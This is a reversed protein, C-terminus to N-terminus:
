QMNAWTCHVISSEYQQMEQSLTQESSFMSSDSLLIDYPLNIFTSYRYKVHERVYIYIYVYVNYM